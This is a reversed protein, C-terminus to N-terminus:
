ATLEAEGRGLNRGTTTATSPQENNWSLYTHDGLKRPKIIHTATFLAGLVICIGGVVIYAIGLFPNKGGMVTRTSILMEKTGSYLTVNFEDWIDIQYRGRNMVQSKDDQRLSLKSFTPLGATRMWVQFAEDNHLNPPKFTDNDYRPWKKRWNPPPVIQDPTYQTQKYLDKDSAWAIGANTMMYTRNNSSDPPNLLVPSQLTDNFISNAILGCPYYPKDQNEPSTLPSCDGSNIQSASKAKGNLQDQDFSKVYRRHNQFFNTLRYYMLIPPTLDNEIDFQMRCVNTNIITYTYPRSRFEEPSIGHALRILEFNDAVQKHGRSFIFPIKDCLM